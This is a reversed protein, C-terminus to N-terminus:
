PYIPFRKCLVAVREAVSAEVASPAADGATAPQNGEVTSDMPAEGLGGDDAVRPDGIGLITTCAAETVCLLGICM